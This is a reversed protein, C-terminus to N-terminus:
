IKTASHYTSASLRFSGGPDGHYGISGRELHGSLLTQSRNSAGFPWTPPLELKFCLGYEASAQHVFSPPGWIDAAMLILRCEGPETLM